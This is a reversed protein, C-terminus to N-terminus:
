KLSKARQAYIKEPSDLPYTLIKTLYADFSKM